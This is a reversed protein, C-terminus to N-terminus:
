PNLTQAILPYLGDQFSRVSEESSHFGKIISVGESGANLLKALENLSANSIAIMIELDRQTEIEISITFPTFEQKHHATFRM